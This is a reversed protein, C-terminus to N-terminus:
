CDYSVILILLVLQIMHSNTHQGSDSHRVLVSKEVETNSATNQATNMWGAVLFTAVSLSM